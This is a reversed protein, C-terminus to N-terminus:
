HQKGQSSSSSSSSTTTAQTTAVKSSHWVKTATAHEGAAQSAGKAGSSSHPKSLDHPAATAASLQINSSSLRQLLEDLVDTCAQGMNNNSCAASLKYQTSATAAWLKSAPRDSQKVRQHALLAATSALSSGAAVLGEHQPKSM